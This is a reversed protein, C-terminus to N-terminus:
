GFIKRFILHKPNLSMRHYYCLSGGLSKYFRGIGESSGGELDLITESSSHKHILHNFLLTQVSDKRYDVETFGLLYVLRKNCEIFLGSSVIDDGDIVSIVSIEM